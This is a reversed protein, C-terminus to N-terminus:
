RRRRGRRGGDSGDPGAVPLKISKHGMTNTVRERAVASKAWGDGLRRGQCQEIRVDHSADPGGADRAHPRAIAFRM